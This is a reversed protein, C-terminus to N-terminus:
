TSAIRPWLSRHPALDVARGGVVDQLGVGLL